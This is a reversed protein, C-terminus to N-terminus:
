LACEKDELIEQRTLPTKIKPYKIESTGSYFKVNKKGQLFARIRM